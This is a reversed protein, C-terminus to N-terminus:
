KGKALEALTVEALWDRVLVAAGDYVEQLRKDLATSGGASAGPTGSRVPGEV